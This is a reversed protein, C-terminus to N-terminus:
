RHRAASGGPRSAACSQRDHDGEHGTGAGRLHGGRHGRTAHVPVIAAPTMRHAAPRFMETNMLNLARATARRLEEDPNSIYFLGLTTYVLAFDVGFDDLREYFLQPIM